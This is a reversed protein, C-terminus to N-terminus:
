SEFTFVELNEGNSSSEQVDEIGEVIQSSEASLSQDEKSYDSGNLTVVPVHKVEYEVKTMEHLDIDDASINKDRILDEIHTSVGKADGIVDKKEEGGEKYIVLYSL